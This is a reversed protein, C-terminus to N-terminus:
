TLPSERWDLVNLGYDTAQKIMDATGKGGPFAILADAYEAMQQNRRPGASRGYKAWDAPFRKVPLGRETAWEEGGTDAGRACGCVVEVIPLEVRAKDLRDHDSATLTYDRGGAIIVKM